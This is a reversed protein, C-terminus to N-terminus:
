ACGQSSASSESSASAPDARVPGSPSLDPCPEAGSVQARVTGACARKARSKPTPAHRKVLKLRGVLPAGIALQGPRKTQAEGTERRLGRQDQNASCGRECSNRTGSARSGTTTAASRHHHGLETIATGIASVHVREVRQVAELALQLLKSQDCVRSDVLQLMPSSHM